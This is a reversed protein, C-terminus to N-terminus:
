SVNETMKEMVRFFVEMDERSIGRTLEKELGTLDAVVVNQYQRADESVLIRKMRGDEAMVERRILGDKEMKKLLQTATPPRLSFEEEVDKQFVDHNQALVFHLVRGQSGSFIARSPFADIRRRLKNSLNNIYHAAHKRTDM